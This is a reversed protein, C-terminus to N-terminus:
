AAASILRVANGLDGKMGHLYGRIMTCVGKRTLKKPPPVSKRDNKQSSPPAAKVVAISLYIKM